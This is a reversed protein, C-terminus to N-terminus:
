VRGQSDIHQHRSLSFPHVLVDSSLGFSMDDVKVYFLLRERSFCHGVKFKRARFRQGCGCLLEVVELGFKFCGSYQLLPQTLPLLSLTRWLRSRSTAHFSTSAM